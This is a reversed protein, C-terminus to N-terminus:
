SEKKDIQNKKRWNNIWREAWKCHKSPLVNEKIIKELNDIRTRANDAHLIFGTNDSIAIIARENDGSIVAPYKSLDSPVIKEYNFFSPSPNYTLLAEEEKRLQEQELNYKRNFEKDLEDQYKQKTLNFLEDITLDTNLEKTM